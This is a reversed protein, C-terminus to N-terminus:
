KKRSRRLSRRQRRKHKRRKRGMLYTQWPSGAVGGYISEGLGGPDGGIPGVSPMPWMGSGFRQGRPLLNKLNYGFFDGIPTMEFGGTPPGSGVWYASNNNGYPTRSLLNM